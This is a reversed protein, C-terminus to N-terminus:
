RVVLTGRMNPHLTCVFAFRDGSRVRELGLVDTSGGLSITPSWFLPCKGKDFGSCWKTKKAARKRLFADAAVFNHPAIDANTYSIGEREAIVVVPPLFGAVFGGPATTVVAASVPVGGALVLWLAFLLVVWLRM